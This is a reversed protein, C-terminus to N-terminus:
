SVKRVAFKPRLYDDPDPRGKVPVYSGYEVDFACIECLLVSNVVEPRWTERGCRCRFPRVGLSSM